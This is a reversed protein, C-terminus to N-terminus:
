PQVNEGHQSRHIEHIYKIFNRNVLAKQGRKEKILEIAQVANFGSKVLILGTLLGSRNMGAQCRVLIRKNNAWLSHYLNVIAILSETDVDSLDDDEFCYRFEQVEPHYLRAKTYTTLVFDLKPKQSDYEKSSGVLEDDQTGGMYLKPMIESANPINM